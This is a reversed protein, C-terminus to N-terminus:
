GGGKVKKQHVTRLAAANGKDVLFMRCLPLLESLMAATPFKTGLDAPNVVGDVKRAIIAGSGVLEQLSLFRVQLHRMPRSVGPKQLLGLCASSDCWLRCRLQYGLETLLATVFLGEASASISGYLEAEGSSLAYTAQNRSYHTLVAGGFTM